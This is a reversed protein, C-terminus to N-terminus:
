RRACDEAGDRPAPAHPPTKACWVQPVTGWLRRAEENASVYGPAEPAFGRPAPAAAPLCVYFTDDGTAVLPLGWRRRATAMATRVRRRLLRIERTSFERESGTPTLALGIRIRDLQDPEMATVYDLWHRANERGRAEALFYSMVRAVRGSPTRPADPCIVPLWRELTFDTTASM